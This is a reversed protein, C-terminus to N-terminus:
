VSSEGSRRLTPRRFPPGTGRLSLYLSLPVGPVPPLGQQCRRGQLGEWRHPHLRRGVDGDGAPLGVGGTVGTGEDGVYVRYILIQTTQGSVGAYLTNAAPTAPTPQDLVSLSYSRATTTRDAGSVFPDTSGANPLIAVDDISSTAVGSQDYSNFSM